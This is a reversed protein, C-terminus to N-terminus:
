SLTGLLDTTYRGRVFDPQRLAKLLTPVNTKIGAIRTEALAERMSAVAADRDEGWAIVKALLPDFFSSVEDGTRFGTDV